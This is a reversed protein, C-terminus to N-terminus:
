DAHLLDLQRKIEAELIPIMADQVPARAEAVVKGNAKVITKIGDQIVAFQNKTIWGVFKDKMRADSGSAQEAEIVSEPAVRQFVQNAFQAGGTIIARAWNVLHSDQKQKKINALAEEVDNPQMKIQGVITFVPKGNVKGLHSLEIERSDDIQKTRKVM